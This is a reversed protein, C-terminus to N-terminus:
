GDTSPSYNPDRPNIFVFQEEQEGEIRVFDLVTQDLLPVYEPEMVVEIGESKISIDEDGSEDFGMRYDFSGDARTMAALRLAMGEAGSQQIATRVQEAAAPTLKFMM